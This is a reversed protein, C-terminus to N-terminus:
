PFSNCKCLTLIDVLALIGIKLEQLSTYTVVACEPKGPIIAM